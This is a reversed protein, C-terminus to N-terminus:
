HKRHARGLAEIIQGEMGASLLFSINGTEGVTLTLVTDGHASKAIQFKSTNFASVVKDGDEDRGYGMQMASCEVINMIEAHPFGLMLGSGDERQVRLMFVQGDPSTMSGLVIPFFEVPIKLWRGSDLANRFYEM